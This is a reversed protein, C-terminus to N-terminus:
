TSFHVLLPIFLTLLLWTALLYTRPRSQPVGHQDTYMIQWTVKYGNAQLTLIIWMFLESFQTAFAKVNEMLTCRPKKAVIYEMAFVALLGRKDSIGLRLSLRSLPQCPAGWVFIDVYPLTAIVVKTVDKEWRKPGYRSKLLKECEENNDIAFEYSFSLSSKEIALLGADMGSFM